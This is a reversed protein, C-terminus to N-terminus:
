AFNVNNALGSEGARDILGLLANREASRTSRRILIVIGGHSSQQALKLFDDRNCTILVAGAEAAHCLVEEDSAAVALCERVLAVENDLARLAPVIVPEPVDHDLLFKM